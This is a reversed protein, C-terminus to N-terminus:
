QAHGRLCVCHHTHPACRPMPQRRMELSQLPPLHQRLNSSLHQHPTPKLIPLIPPQTAPWIEDKCNHLLFLSIQCHCIFRRRKVLQWNQKEFEKRTRRSKGM